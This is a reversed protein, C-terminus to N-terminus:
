LCKNSEINTIVKNIGLNIDVKLPYCLLHAVVCQTLTRWVEPRDAGAALPLKDGAVKDTSPDTIQLRTTNM